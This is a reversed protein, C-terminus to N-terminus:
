VTELLRTVLVTRLPMDDVVVHEDRAHAGGGVAGLGDLVPVGLVACFNGDSGGGVQVESLDFGLVGALEQAQRFLQATGETREMPPRNMGGTLRAQIEPHHPKWGLIRETMTGAEIETAVRLDIEAQANAAVVNSRTGGTVVGVNVTTGTDRNSLAHLDLTLHALEEIASVGALPDLGAHSPKGVLEAHFIGVGKRATKLAGSHSPELVFVAAARAAEQEILSRSTPSGTEEDSNCFFIVPREVGTVERLTRVAWFGQVLGSKMDFIGPGTAIGDEVQFPMEQLTGQPWVTDFHGLLLIPAQKGVQGWSVRVHNGAEDMPIIEPHGGASSAYDSLFDAFQDLLVKDTSPSERVVFEALDRVMADQHQQLFDRGDLARGEHM